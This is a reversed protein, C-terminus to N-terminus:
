DGLGLHMLSVCEKRFTIIIKFPENNNFMVAKVCRSGLQLKELIM